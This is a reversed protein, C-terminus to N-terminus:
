AKMGCIIAAQALEHDAAHGPRKAFPHPSEDKWIEVNQNHPEARSESDCPMDDTCQQNALERLAYTGNYSFTM